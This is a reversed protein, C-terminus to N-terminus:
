RDASDGVRGGSKLWIGGTSVAVALRGEGDRAVAGTEGLDHTGSMSLLREMASQPDSKKLMSGMPSKKRSTGTANLTLGMRIRVKAVEGALLCHISKTMVDRAVHVGNTVDPVTVM